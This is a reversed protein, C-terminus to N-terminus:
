LKEINTMEFSVNSRQYSSKNTMIAKVQKVREDYLERRGTKLKLTENLISIIRAKRQVDVNEINGGPKTLNHAFEEFKKRAALRELEAKDSLLM